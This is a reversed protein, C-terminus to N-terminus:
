LVRAKRGARAADYVARLLTAPLMCAVSDKRAGLMTPRLLRVIRSCQERAGLVPPVSPKSM